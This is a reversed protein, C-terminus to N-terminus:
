SICTNETRSEKIFNNIQLTANLDVKAEVSIMDQKIFFEMIDPYM